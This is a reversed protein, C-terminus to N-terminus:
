HRKNLQYEAFVRAKREDALEEQADTLLARLRRIENNAKTIERAAHSRDQDNHMMLLIESDSFM